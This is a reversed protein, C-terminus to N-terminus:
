VQNCGLGPDGTGGTTDSCGAQSGLLAHLPRGESSVVVPAEYPRRPLEEADAAMEQGLPAQQKTTEMKHEM